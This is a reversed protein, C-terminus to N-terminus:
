TGIEEYNRVAEFLQWLLGSLYNNDVEPAFGRNTTFGNVSGQLEVLCGTDYDAGLGAFGAGFDIVASRKQRTYASKRVLSSQPYPPSGLVRM